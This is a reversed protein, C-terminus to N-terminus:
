NNFWNNADLKDNRFYEFLSGHWNNTGSRTTFAFQGGPTRGYEASYTSTIARFEQLADVPVTSQTTGLATQGPVAGAPGAGYGLNLGAVTGSNASVGDVTYYNAESRQGNVSLDGSL